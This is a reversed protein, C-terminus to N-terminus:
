PETVGPNSSSQITVRPQEKRDPQSEPARELHSIQLEMTRQLLQLITQAFDSESDIKFNRLMGSNCIQEFTSFNSLDERLSKCTKTVETLDAELQAITRERDNLLDEVEGMEVKRFNRDDWLSLGPRMRFRNGPDEATQYYYGKHEM